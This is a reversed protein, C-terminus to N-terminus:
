SYYFLMKTTKKSFLIFTKKCKLPILKIEKQEPNIKFRKMKKAINDTIIENDELVQFLSSFDARTTIEIELVRTSLYKM